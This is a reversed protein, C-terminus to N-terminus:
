KPWQKGFFDQRRMSKVGLGELKLEPYRAKIVDPKVDNENVSHIPKAQGMALPLGFYTVYYIMIQIEKYTQLTLKTQDIM